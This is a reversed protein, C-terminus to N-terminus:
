TKFHVIEEFFVKQTIKGKNVSVELISLTKLKSSQDQDCHQKRCTNNNNLYNGNHKHTQRKTQSSRCHNKSMSNLWVIPSNKNYKPTLTKFHVTKNTLEQATQEIQKNPQIKTQKITLNIGIIPNNSKNDLNQKTYICAIKTKQWKQYNGDNANNNYKKLLTSPSNKKHKKYTYPKIKQNNAKNNRKTKQKTITPLTYCNIAANKGKENGNGKHIKTSLKRSIRDLTQKNDNGVLYYKNDIKYFLMNTKKSFILDPKNIQHTEVTAGIIIITIGFIFSVLNFRSLIILGFMSIFYSIGSMSQIQIQSMPTSSVLEAMLLVLNALYSTTAYIITDLGTGSLMIGCFSIPLIVFEVLPIAIINTVFGGISIYGFHFIEIISLPVTVLFSGIITNKTYLTILQLAKFIVRFTKKRKIQEIILKVIVNINKSKIVNYKQEEGKNKKNLCEKIRDKKILEKSEEKDEEKTYIGIMLNIKPKIIGFGVILAFTAMFSMQFSALFLKEPFLVLISCAIVTWSRLPIVKKNLLIGFIVIAFGCFSRVASIPKNALLLYLLGFLLAIIAAIKKTNYFLHINTFRAFGYRLLFFVFSAIITIHLGSIALLHALGSSRMNNLNQKSLLSQSGTSVALILGKGNKDGRSNEIRYKIYKRVKHVANHTIASNISYTTIQKIKGKIQPKIIQHVLSNTKSNYQNYFMPQANGVFTVTSNILMNNCIKYCFFQGNRHQKGNINLNKLFINASNNKLTDIKVVTGTISADKTYYFHLPQNSKHSKIRENSTILGISLGVCFVCLSMAINYAFRNIPNTKLKLKACKKSKIFAILLTTVAILIGILISSLSGKLPTLQNLKLYFKFLITIGTSLGLFFYISNWTQNTQASQVSNAKNTKQLYLKANPKNKTTKHM